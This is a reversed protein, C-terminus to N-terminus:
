PLPALTNSPTATTRCCRSRLLLKITNGLDASQRVTADLDAVVDVLLGQCEGGVTNCADDIIRAGTQATEYLVGLRQAVSGHRVALLILIRVARSMMTDDVFTM